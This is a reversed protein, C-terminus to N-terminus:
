QPKGASEDKKEHSEICQTFTDKKLLFCLVGKCINREDDAVRIYDQWDDVLEHLLTHGKILPDTGRSGSYYGASSYNYTWPVRVIRARVPNREVYRAVALLYREDLPSSSFRGQWLHGRWKERFNIMRTYRVHADSFCLGLSDEKKPVVVFHVHNTMICYSWIEVGYKSCSNKILDIYADKDADSFFVDQRRNGRQVVHHPLGPVVVRALRAM